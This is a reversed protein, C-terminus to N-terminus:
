QLLEALQQADADKGDILITPTSNYGDKSMQDTANEIWQEYVKDEIQPRVESETAGAAVARDILEDDEFGPGGEEPQNAYLDDHFARFAEIGATDLVALAANLARSSYENTSYRDLFSIMRYELRVDGADVAAALPEGLQAELNACAPCQLDEYVTVTTPADPQGVFIGYGDLEGPTGDSESGSAVSPVTDATEGTTDRTSQWWTLGGVIVLVAAVVSGIAVLRRRREEAQKQRLAEAARQKRAERREPTNKSM